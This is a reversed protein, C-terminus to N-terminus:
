GWIIQDSDDRFNVVFPVDNFAVLSSGSILTGSFADLIRVREHLTNWEGGRRIVVNTYDGIRADAIPTGESNACVLYQNIADQRRFAAAATVIGPFVFKNETYNYCVGSDMGGCYGEETLFLISVQVKTNAQLGVQPPNGLEGPFYVLSGPIVPTDMVRLRKADMKQTEMRFSKNLFWVGEKTGVYIGDTVAGIMTIDAEFNWFGRTKDVFDYLYLETQWVTHGAGLYIRGDFYALCTALPPAGYLRGRIAPLTVTPNVVPSYWLDPTTGWSAIEWTDRDIKGARTRSSFYIKSGVQVWALPDTPYGGDIVRFSFDPNVLGIDGDKVGLTFGDSDTFLSSFNGSSVKRRGRRRHFQGRDDLDVNIAFELEKPGLREPTVINVLGEFEQFIISEPQDSQPPPAPRKAM